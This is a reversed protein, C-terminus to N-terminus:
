KKREKFEKPMNTKVWNKYEENSEELVGCINKCYELSKETVNSMFELHTKFADEAKNERSMAQIYKVAASLNNSGVDINHRNIKTAVRNNLNQLKMIPGFYSNNWEPWDAFNQYFM